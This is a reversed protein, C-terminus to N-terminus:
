GAGAQACYPRDRLGLTFFVRSMALGGISFVLVIAAVDIPRLPLYSTM